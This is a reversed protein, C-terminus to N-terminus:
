TGGSLLEGQARLEGVLAMLGEGRDLPREVHAALSGGRSLDADRRASTFEDLRAERHVALLVDVDREGDIRLAGEALRHHVARVVGYACLEDDNRAQGVIPACRRALEAREGITVEFVRSRSCTDFSVDVCRRERD